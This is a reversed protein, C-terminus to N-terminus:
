RRQLPAAAASGRVLLLAPTPRGSIQSRVRNGTARAADTEFRDKEGEWGIRRYLAALGAADKVEPAVSVELAHQLEHGLRAIREPPSLRQFDIRVLLYRASGDRSLFTLYSAPESVAWPISDALYVILDTQELDELLTTVISSRESAIALLAASGPSLPRTRTWRPPTQPPSPGAFAAVVVSLTLWVMIITTRM